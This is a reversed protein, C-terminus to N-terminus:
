PPSVPVVGDLLKGNNCLAKLVQMFHHGRCFRDAEESVWGAGCKGLSFRAFQLCRCAKQTEAYETQVDRTGSM